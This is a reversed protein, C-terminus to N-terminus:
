LLASFDSRQCQKPRSAPCSYGAPRSDSSLDGLGTVDPSRPTTLGQGVRLSADPHNRPSLPLQTIDFCITVAPANEHANRKLTTVPTPQLLLLGGLTSRLLGNLKVPPVVAIGPMPVPVPPAFAVPVPPEVLVPVLPVLELPVPPLRLVPVPPLPVAPLVEISAPVAQVEELQALPMHQPLVQM